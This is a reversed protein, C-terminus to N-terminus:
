GGAFWAAEAESYYLRYVRGDSGKVRFVRRRPGGGADEEVRADIVESVEVRRGELVFARPTEEGRYGSYATVEIPRGKRGEM